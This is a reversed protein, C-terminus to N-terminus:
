FAWYNYKHLWRNRAVPSIYLENKHYSGLTSAMRTSMPDNHAKCALLNFMEISNPLWIPNTSNMLNTMCSHNKNLRREQCDFRSISVLIPKRRAVTELVIPYKINRRYHLNMSILTIIFFTCYDYNPMRCNRVVPSGHLENRYYSCQTNAMEM